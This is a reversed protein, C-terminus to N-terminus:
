ILHRLAAVTRVIADNESVEDSDELIWLARIVNYAYCWATLQEKDLDLVQSYIDLRRRILSDLDPAQAVYDLPNHLAPAVDASRDGYLGWPDIVLLGRQEDSLVNGHHLDGHLLYPQGRDALLEVLVREATHRASRIMQIASGLEDMGLIVSLRTEPAAAAKSRAVRGHPGRDFREFAERFEELPRLGLSDPDELPRGYNSIVMALTETVEDDADGDAMEDLAIGPLARELLLVGNGADEEVVGIAVPGALRLGLLEREAGEAEPIGTPQIKLVCPRGDSREVPVVYCHSLPFEGVVTLEWRELYTDVLEPLLGLWPRWSRPVREEYGDPLELEHLGAM